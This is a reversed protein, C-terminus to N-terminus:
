SDSRHIEHDDGTAFAKGSLAAKGAQTGRDSLAPLVKRGFTELFEMQNRGVCHLHVTVGLALLASIDALHRDLDASIPLAAYLAADSATQCAADFDDPQRLDCLANGALVAHRWQDRAEALAQAETAAWSLAHQVHVPKGAGGGARFADIVAAVNKATGGVTLLGDAWSAVEFATEATVAAAFIPVPQVPRSYLRAGIVTVRGRHTVEQGALLARIIAACEALIAQREAKEPWPQGSIAENLAEGSGLALWFRGPAMEALTAAAQALVAPHQRYGPCAITGFPLACTQMAAGLWAWSHGSQGQRGSWPHFHDSCKIAGFGMTEAKHCLALLTSPAFQEHSAHYGIGTM